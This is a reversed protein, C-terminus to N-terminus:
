KRGGKRTKSVVLYVGVGALALVLITGPSTLGEALTDGFGPEQAEPSAPIVPLNWHQGGLGEFASGLEALTRLYEESPIIMIDGNPGRTYTNGSADSGLADEITTRERWADLIRQGAKGTAWAGGGVAGGMVLPKLLGMSQSSLAARDPAAMPPRPIRPPKPVRAPLTPLRPPAVPARFRPIKPPM